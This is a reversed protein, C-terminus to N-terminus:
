PLIRRFIAFAALAPLLLAGAFLFSARPGPPLDRVIPLLSFASWLAAWALGVGVLSSAFVVAATPPALGQMWAITRRLFSPEMWVIKRCRDGNRPPTDCPFRTWLM